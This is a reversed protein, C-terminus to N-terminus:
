RRAVTPVVFRRSVATGGFRRAVATGFRRSVPRRPPHGAIEPVRRRRPGVRALHRRGVPVDAVAYRVLRDAEDAFPHLPEVLVRAGPHLEEVPAALAIPHESLLGARHVGAVRRFPHALAPLVQVLRQVPRVRVDDDGTDAVPDRRRDREVDPVTLQLQGLEAAGVLAAGPTRGRGDLVEDRPVGRVVAPHRDVDSIGSM